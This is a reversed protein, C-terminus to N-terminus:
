HADPDAGVSSDTFMAERERDAEARYEQHAERHYQAEAADATPKDPLNDPWSIAFEAGCGIAARGSADAPVWCQYRLQGPRVEWANGCENPCDVVWRGHNAYPVATLDDAM